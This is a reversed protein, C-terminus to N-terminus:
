QEKTINHSLFRGCKIKINILNNSDHSMQCCKFYYQANNCYCYKYYSHDFKHIQNCVFVFLIVILLLLSIEEQQLIQIRRLFMLDFRAIGVVELM